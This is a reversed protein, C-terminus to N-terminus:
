NGLTYYHLSSQQGKSSVVEVAIEKGAPLGSPIQVKIETNSWSSISGEQGDFKVQGNGSDFRDGSITVTEGPKAGKPSISDPTFYPQGLPQTFSFRNSKKGEYSTMEISYNTGSAGVINVQISDNQWNTIMGNHIINGNSEYITITGQTSGFNNGRITYNVYQGFNANSASMGTIVPSNNNHSSSTQTTSPSTNASNSTTTSTPHSTPQPTSIVPKPTSTPKATSIPKSSTTPILTAVPSPSPTPLPTPSNAIGNVKPDSEQNTSKLSAVAVGSSALFIIGFILMIINTSFRQPLAKVLKKVIASIHM